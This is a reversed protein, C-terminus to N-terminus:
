NEWSAQFVLDAVSDMLTLVYSSQAFGYRRHAVSIVYTQGVELNELHFTGFQNTRAVRPATLTGGSVVVEALRLPEGRLGTVRGSITANAATPALATPAWFGGLAALFPSGSSTGAADQGATGEIKYVNVADRSEGGGGAIVTQQLSFQGGSSPQAAIAVAGLMILATLVGPRGTSSQNLM